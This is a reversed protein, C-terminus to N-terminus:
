KAMSKPQVIPEDKKTDFAKETRDSTVIDMKALDKKPFGMLSAFWVTPVKGLYTKYVRKKDILTKQNNEFDGRGAEVTTQIQKYLSADLQPNQETIMQFLAKSGEDGYRGEIATKYAGKLDESYKDVVGLSEVVQKFHKDYNNQNQTYQAEIGEEQSVCENYVSGATVVASIGGVVVLGLVLLLSKM